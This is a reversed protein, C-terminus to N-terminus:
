SKEEASSVFFSLHKRARLAIIGGKETNMNMSGNEKTTIWVKTLNLLSGNESIQFPNQQNIGLEEKREQTHITKINEKIM